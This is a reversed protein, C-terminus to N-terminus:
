ATSSRNSHMMCSSLLSAQARRPPPAAFLARPARVHACVRQLLGRVGVLLVIRAAQAVLAVALALCTQEGMMPHSQLITSSCRRSRQRSSCPAHVSRSPAGQVRRASHPGHAGARRLCASAARARDPLAALQLPLCLLLELAMVMVLVAAGRRLPSGCQRAAGTARAWLLVGKRAECADMAQAVM